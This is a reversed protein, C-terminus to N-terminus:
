LAEKQPWSLSTKCVARVPMAVDTVGGSTGDLEGKGWSTGDLEGKGGSNGDLEGEDGSASDLEASGLAGGLTTGTCSVKAEAPGAVYKFLIFIKDSLFVNAYVVISVCKGFLEETRM